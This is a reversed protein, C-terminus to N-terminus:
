AVALRRARRTRLTAGLGGFGLLMVAWSSPEPVPTFVSVSGTAALWGGSVGSLTYGSPFLTPAGSGCSFGDACTPLFPNDFSADAFRLQLVFDGNGSTIQGAGTALGGISMGHSPGGGVGFSSFALASGLAPGVYDTVTIGTTQNSFNVTPDFTLTFAGSLTDLPPPTAGIVPVFDTFEFVYTRTITAASAAAATFTAGALVLATAVRRLLKM